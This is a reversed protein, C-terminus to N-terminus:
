RRLGEVYLLGIILVVITKAKIVLHNCNFYPLADLFDTEHSLKYIEKYTERSLKDNDLFVQKMKILYEAITKCNEYKECNLYVQHSINQKLTKLLQKRAKLRLYFAGDKNNMISENNIRRYRYYAENICCVRKARSYASINFCLDEAIRINENIILKNELLFEKNYLKNCLSPYGLIQNKTLLTELSKKIENDEILRKEKFPTTYKSSQGNFENIEVYGCAVIESMTKVAIKYMNEYMNPEVTDDSDVFAVYKGKSVKIGLNRTSSPGSNTKHIVKIRNDTQAYRDCIGGSNDSSGDNILILEFNKFTQNIISEICEKLFAEVNYVPVIISIEPSMYIVAKLFTKVFSLSSYSLEFLNDSSKLRM